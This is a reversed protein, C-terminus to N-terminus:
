SIFLPWYKLQMPAGSSNRGLWKCKRIGANGVCGRRRKQMGQWRRQVITKGEGEEQVNASSRGDLVVRPFLAQFDGFLRVFDNAISCRLVFFTRLPSLPTSYKKKYIYLLFSRDRFRPGDIHPCLFPFPFLFISLYRLSPDFLLWFRSFRLADSSFLAGRAGSIISGAVPPFFFFPFKIRPMFVLQRCRAYEGAAIVASKSFSRKIRGSTM